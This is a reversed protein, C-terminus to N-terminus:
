DLEVSGDRGDIVTCDRGAAKARYLARDARALASSPEDSPEDDSHERAIGASFTVAEEQQTWACRIREVVKNASDEDAQLLLCFEEGGYRSVHDDPRVHEVLLNAFRTLLEDGALHGHQDNFDKFRDLDLMVVCRLGESDAEAIAEDLVRRNAVGTVPDTRSHRLLDGLVRDRECLQALLDVVANVFRPREVEWLVLSVRGHSGTGLPLVVHREDEGPPPELDELWLAVRRAGTVEQVMPEARRLGDALERASAATRALRALSEADNRARHASSVLFEITAVIVATIGAFIVVRTVVHAAPAGLNSHAIAFVTTGTVWSLVTYGWHRRANIQYSMAAVLGLSATNALDQSAVMALGAAGNALMITTVLFVPSGALRPERIWAVASVGLLAFLVVAGGVARWDLPAVKPLVLALMIVPGVLMMRVLVGINLQRDTERNAADM